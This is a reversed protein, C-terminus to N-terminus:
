PTPATIRHCRRGGPRCRSSVTTRGSSVAALHRGGHASLGGRGEDRSGGAGVGRVAGRGPATGWPRQAWGPGRRPLRRGGGRSGGRPWTGDGMPASGVGARTAPAEPGWEEFRGAVVHRGGHASLGGRGEDRSGGAGVGRVAGCGR